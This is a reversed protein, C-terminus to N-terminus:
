IVDPMTWTTCIQILLFWVYLFGSLCMCMMGVSYLLMNQFCYYFVYWWSINRISWLCRWRPHCIEEHNTSPFNSEKCNGHRQMYIGSWFGVANGFTNSSWIWYSVISARCQRWWGSINFNVYASILPLVDKLPLSWTCIWLYIYIPVNHTCNVM